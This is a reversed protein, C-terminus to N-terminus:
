SVNVFLFPLFSFPFFEQERRLKQPRSGRGGACGGGREKLRSNNKAQEGQSSLYPDSNFDKKPRMKVKLACCTLAEELPVGRDREEPQPKGGEGAQRSTLGQRCSRKSLASALSFVRRLGKVAPAWGGAKRGRGEEM